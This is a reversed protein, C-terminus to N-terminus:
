KNVVGDLGDSCGVLCDWADVTTGDAFFGQRKTFDNVAGDIIILGLPISAHYREAFHDEFFKKLLDYRVAFAESSNKIWHTIERVDSKYYNILVQEAEALGGQEFAANANRILSSSMSDYACWGHPSFRDNFSTVQLIMDKVQDEMKKLQDRQERKLFASLFKMSQIDSQLKSLSVLNDDM